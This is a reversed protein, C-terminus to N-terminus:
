TYNKYSGLFLYKHAQICNKQKNKIKISAPVEKAILKRSVDLKNEMYANLIQFCSQQILASSM